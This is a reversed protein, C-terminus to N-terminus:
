GGRRRKLGRGVFEYAATGLPLDKQDALRRLKKLEADTLMVVVRNRRVAELEKGSGRPRGSGPRPGGRGKRRVQGM